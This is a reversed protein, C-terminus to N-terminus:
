IELYGRPEAKEDIGAKKAHVYISFDYSSSLSLFSKVMPNMWWDIVKCCAGAFWKREVVKRKNFEAKNHVTM